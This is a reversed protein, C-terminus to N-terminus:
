TNLWQRAQSKHAFLFEQRRAGGAQTQLRNQISLTLIPEFDEPAKRESVALLRTASQERAWQWFDEAIWPEAIAAYALTGDYPPDCYTIQAPESQRYDCAKFEVDQCHGMKRTLSESAAVAATVYCNTRKFKTAYSGFWNGSYSCGFGAFATLPDTPDNIARLAEWQEKSLDRPPTWGAQMAAYLRILPACADSASRKQIKIRYTVSLGGCFPESYTDLGLRQATANILAAIAAGGSNQKGGIYQM